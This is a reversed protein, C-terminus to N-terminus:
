RVLLDRGSVALVLYRPDRHAALVAAPHRRPLGRHKPLDVHRRMNREDFNSYFSGDLLVGVRMQHKTGVNFDFNDAIEVRDTSTDSRQGAGGKNFADQVNITPADFLSNSQNGSTSVQVRFENLKSGGIIGQLRFRTQTTKSSNTTGREPLTFGGPNSIRDNETQQYNFLM